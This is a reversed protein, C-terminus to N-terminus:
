KGKSYRREVKRKRDKGAMELPGVAMTCGKPYTCPQQAATSLGTPCSQQHQTGPIMFLVPLAVQEAMAPPAAAATL